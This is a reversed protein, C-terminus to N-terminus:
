ERALQTKKGEAIVLRGRESLSMQLRAGSKLLWWRVGLVVGARVQRLLYLSIGAM